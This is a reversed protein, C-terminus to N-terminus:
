GARPTSTASAAVTPPPSPPPTAAITTSASSALSTSPTQLPRPAGGGDNCGAVLLLVPVLRTMRAVAGVRRALKSTRM